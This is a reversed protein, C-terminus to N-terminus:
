LIGGARTYIDQVKVSSEDEPIPIVFVPIKARRLVKEAVSGLLAQSILGHGHTGMVIADSQTKKAADLIEIAPHGEVIDIGAVRFVCKPDEKRVNDCFINLRERIKEKINTQRNTLRELQEETMYMEVQVRADSPIKALVHIIHILANYKEAMDTAYTFAYASNKSLDTACLIKKIEPM